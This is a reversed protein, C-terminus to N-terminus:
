EWDYTPLSIISRPDTVQHLVKLLAKLADNPLDLGSAKLAAQPDNLLQAAFDKDTAIRHTVKALAM